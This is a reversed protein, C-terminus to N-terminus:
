IRSKKAINRSDHCAWLIYPPQNKYQLGWLRNPEGVIPFYIAEFEQPGQRLSRPNNVFLLEWIKYQLEM